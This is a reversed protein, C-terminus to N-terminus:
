NMYMLGVCTQVFFSNNMLKHLNVESKNHEKQGLQTDIDICEWLLPCKQLKPAAPWNLVLIWIIDYIDVFLSMNEKTKM